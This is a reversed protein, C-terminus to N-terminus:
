IFGLIDKLTRMAEMDAPSGCKKVIAEYERIKKIGEDGKYFHLRTGVIAAEIVAGFGRSYTPARCSAITASVAELIVADEVKCRFYAWGAADRLRPPVMGDEFQFYEPGLDRFASLVYVRSDDIFNAVLYGVDSVNRFTTTDPFMRIFYKSGQRVIGMPAANPVGDKSVTTVIAETIGEKIIDDVSVM